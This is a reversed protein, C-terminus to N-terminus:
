QFQAEQQVPSSMLSAPSCTRPRLIDPFRFPKYTEESYMHLRLPHLPLPMSFGPALALTVGFSIKPSSSPASGTNKSIIEAIFPTGTM